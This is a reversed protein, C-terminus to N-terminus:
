GRSAMWREVEARMADALNEDDIEEIAEEAFAAILM